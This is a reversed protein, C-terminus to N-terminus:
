SAISSVPVTVGTLEEKTLIPLSNRYATCDLSLLEWNRVNGAMEIFGKRLDKPSAKSIATFFVVSSLIEAEEDENIMSRKAADYLPMTQWGQETSIIVNTLRIIENVLGKEVEAWTGLSKSIAKLSYYSIQPATIAMHENGEALCQTFVKGLEMYFQEFIDRSIPSSHVYVKGSAETQIPIVLNLNRDIKM